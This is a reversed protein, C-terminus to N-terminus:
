KMFCNMLFEPNENLYMAVKYGVISIIFKEILSNMKDLSLMFACTWAITYLITINQMGVMNLGWGFFSLAGFLAIEIYVKEKTFKKPQTRLKIIHRLNYFCVSGTGFLVLGVRFRDFINAYPKAIDGMYGVKAAKAILRTLLDICFFSKHAGNFAKEGTLNQYVKNIYDNENHCLYLLYISTVGLIDSDFHIVTPLLAVFVITFFTKVRLKSADESYKVLNTAFLRWSHYLAQYFFVFSSIGVMMSSVRSSDMTYSTALVCLVGYYNLIEIIGWKHLKKIMPWLVEIIFKRIRKAVWTFHKAIFERLPKTLLWCVPGTSIALVLISCFWMINVFNFLGQARQYMNKYHDAENLFEM